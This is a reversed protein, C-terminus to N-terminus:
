RGQGVFIPRGVLELAGEAGDDPTASAALMSAM